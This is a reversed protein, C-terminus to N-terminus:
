VAAILGMNDSSRQKNFWTIVEEPEISGFKKEVEHVEDWKLYQLFSEQNQYRM